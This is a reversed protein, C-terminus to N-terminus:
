SNAGGAMHMGNHAGIRLHPRARPGSPLRDDLWSVVAAQDTRGSGCGLQPPKPAGPYARSYTYLAYHVIAVRCDTVLM